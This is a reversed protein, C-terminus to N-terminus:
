PRWARVLLAWCLARGHFPTDPGAVPQRWPLPCLDDLAYAFGAQEILQLISPGNRRNPDFEHVDIFMARVDGLVDACDALVAREAGEIDLKVLDIPERQLLDRLRVCPVNRTAGHLDGALADITGSDAGECCFDITGNDTWVAAQLAEAGAVGNDRLNGELLAHLAPDAEYATIRAQPYLRKFYLTALGINAGCDVIRPAPHRAEFRLSQKVFLDKWQPCLTLLDAYRLEYDMLRIRGPTFRPTRTARRCAYRWASIEASPFFRRKAVGAARRFPQLGARIM